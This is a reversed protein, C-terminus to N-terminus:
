GQLTLHIQDLFGQLGEKRKMRLRKREEATKHLYIEEETEPLVPPVESPKGHEDVAVFTVFSTATLKREGNQLNESIVKVFVEMSTRGTSVVFAELCIAFGLKAPSLFDVSDISATVVPKKAHRMASIAGVVDIYSVVTGGFITGHNNTNPPLVISSQIARSESVKKPEM